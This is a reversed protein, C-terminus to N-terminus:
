HDTNVYPIQGNASLWLGSEVSRHPSFIPGTRKHQCVLLNPNIGLSLFKSIHAVLVVNHRGEWRGGIHGCVQCLSIPIKYIHYKLSEVLMEPTWPTLCLDQIQQKILMLSFPVATSFHYFWAYYIYLGYLGSYLVLVLLQFRGPQLLCFDNNCQYIYLECELIYERSKRVTSRSPPPSPPTTTQARLNAKSCDMRWTQMTSGTVDLMERQGRPFIQPLRRSKQSQWVFNMVVYTLGAQWMHVQLMIDLLCGRLFFLITSGYINAIEM